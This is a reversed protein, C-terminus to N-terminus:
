YRTIAAIGDTGAPMEHYRVFHTAAGTAAAQEIASEAFEENPTTAIVLDSVAAAELAAQVAKAGRAGRGTGLATELMALVDAEDCEEIDRISELLAAHVESMPVAVRVTVHGSVLARDAAPLARELRAPEPEPGGLLLHDVPHHELHQSLAAACAAIHHEAVELLAPYERLEGLRYEFMRVREHDVLAVGFTGATELISELQLLHPRDSVVIQDRVPVPLGLAESTGNLSCAVMVVGRVLSRDLDQELWERMATTDQRVATQVGPARSEAAQAARQALAGFAEICDALRPRHRGDVDLYCTTMVAAHAIESM